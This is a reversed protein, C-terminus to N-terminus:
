HFDEDGATGTEYARCDDPQCDAPAVADYIDIGLAFAMAREFVQAPVKTADRTDPGRWHKPPNHKPTEM